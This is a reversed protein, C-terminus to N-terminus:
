FRALSLFDIPLATKGELALDALADGIVPAFKYGHGSFGAALAVAGHEPPTATYMCVSYRTLRPQMRPFTERLFRLVNTEDGDCLDRQLAEPSSVPQGGTHEAVKMGDGGYIPFGYVAGYDLESFFVPFEAGGYAARNPTDYWLQPKRLVQLPLGLAALQAAAWPGATVILAGATYAAEATRVEVGAGDARWELVPQQFHLTAGHREALALHRDICREIFLYGGLPDWFGVHGEPFRFQPFRASLEAGPLREHALDNQAYCRELGSIADCEPGGTMLVGCQTFLVQGSEEELRRWGAYAHGLLPVYDPHEFYGRRMVRVDGHSSGLGHVRGYQELGRVRVGRKALAYVAASGMGGLGLVIVDYVHGM